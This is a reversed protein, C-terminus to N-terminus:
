VFAGSAIYPSCLKVIQMKVLGSIIEHQGVNLHGFSLEFSLM